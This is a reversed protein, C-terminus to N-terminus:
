ISHLGAFGILKDGDCVAFWINPPNLENYSQCIAKFTNECFPFIGGIKERISSDDHWCFFAERDDERISRLGIQGGRIFYNEM